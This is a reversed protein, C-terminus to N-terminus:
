SCCGLHSSLDFAIQTKEVIKSGHAMVLNMEPPQPEPPRGSILHNNTHGRVGGTQMDFGFGIGLHQAM